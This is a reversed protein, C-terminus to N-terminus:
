YRCKKCTLKHYQDHIWAGLLVLLVIPTGIIIGLATWAYFLIKRM